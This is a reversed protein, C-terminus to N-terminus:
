SQTRTSREAEVGEVQVGRVAMTGQANTVRLSMWRGAMRPAYRELADAEVGLYLGEQCLVGAPGKPVVSYDERGLRLQDDNANTVDYDPVGHTRYKARDRRGEPELVTMEAVGDTLAEVRFNPNWTTVNVAVRRFQKRDVAIGMTYGRTELLDSIAHEVGGILDSRGEDMLLVRRNVEDVAFLRKENGYDTVLWNQVSLGWGAEDYGEWQGSVTNFRLVVNNEEAGDVPVALLYYVGWVVGAAKHAARWNIRRMTRAIPDSVPEAATQLREQIVQTLRYVGTRDLFFVDGGVSAVSRRAITGVQRNVQDLRANQSYDGYLNSILFISHEKFVLVSNQTFPWIRTIVEDTGSNVKFQSLVSDYRTYDLVDSVAIEDRGMPVLLRNAFMEGTTSNPIPDVGVEEMESSSQSIPSFTLTSIKGDWELPVFKPGRFLLVKNFCQVFECPGTLEEGAPMGIVHPGQDHKMRCVGEPTAILMWETDFPDSYIGSGYIAGYEMVRTFGPEVIGGRTRAAGDRFRKNVAAACMGVPLLGRELKDNVGLWGHDGDAAGADDRDFYTGYRGMTGAM